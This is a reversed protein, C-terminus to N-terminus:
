VTRGTRSLDHVIGVGNKYSPKIPLLFRGGVEMVRPEAVADKLAGAMLSSVTSSISAYLTEAKKRLAGLQPFRTESLQQKEDFAGDLANVLADPLIIGRVMGCLLPIDGGFRDIGFRSADNGAAAAVPTAGTDEGTASALKSDVDETFARPHTLLYSRLASLDSLLNSVHVM